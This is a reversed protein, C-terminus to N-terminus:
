IRVSKSLRPSSDRVRVLEKLWTRVEEINKIQESTYEDTCKQKFSEKYDDNSSNIWYEVLGINNM